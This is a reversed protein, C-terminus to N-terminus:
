RDEEYDQYPQDDNQYDNDNYTSTNQSKLTYRGQKDVKYISIKM